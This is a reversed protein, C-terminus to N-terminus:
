RARSRIATASATVTLPAFEGRIYKQWGAVGIMAANDTGHIPRVTYFALGADGCATEMAARLRSNAAVGGVLVLREHGTARAAALGKWILVDVIAEQYSACLDSLAAGTPKTGGYHDRLHYRLATKLGSFSFDLNGHQKLARPFVVADPNGEAARRDIEPGGPYGLGLLRAGKDFAEGAADDRTAGLLRYAGASEVSYLLTHGGSVVLGVFPFEVDDNDLFVSLLHAEVHHVAILPVDLTSALGKAVNLGVLLSGVLGPETTVAVASLDGYGIGGTKMVSMVEPAIAALHARSALEPVVGGWVRHDRQSSIVHAVVSGNKLLAVSTEDCSTEIALLYTSDM